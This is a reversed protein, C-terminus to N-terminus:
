CRNVHILYRQEICGVRPIYWKNLQQIVPAGDQKQNTPMIQPFMNLHKIWKKTKKQKINPNIQTKGICPSKTKNQKGKNRKLNVTQFYKKSQLKDESRRLFAEM